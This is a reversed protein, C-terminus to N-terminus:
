GNAYIDIFVTIATDTIPKIYPGGKRFSYSIAHIGTYTKIKGQNVLHRQHLRLRM